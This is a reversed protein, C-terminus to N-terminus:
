KKGFLGKKKPTLDPPPPMALDHFDSDHFNTMPTPAGFNPPPPMGGSSPSTGGNQSPSGSFVGRQNPSRNQMSSQFNQQGQTNGMQNFSQAPSFSQPSNFSPTDFSSTDFSPGALGPNSDFSPFQSRPRQTPNQFRQPGPFKPQAFSSLEQKFDKPIREKVLDSLAIMGEAIIKNQDLLEDLKEMIPILQGSIDAKEHDEAKVSETATKFIELMNDMSKTLSKMSNTLPSNEFNGEMHKIEEKLDKIDSDPTISYPEIAVM